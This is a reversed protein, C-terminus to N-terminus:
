PTSKVNSDRGRILENRLEILETYILPKPCDELPVVKDCDIQFGLLCRPIEGSCMQLARCRDCTKKKM